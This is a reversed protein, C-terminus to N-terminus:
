NTFALSKVLANFQPKLSLSSGMDFTFYIGNHKLAFVMDEINIAQTGALNIQESPFGEVAFFKDPSIYINFDAYKKGPDIPIVTFGYKKTASKIKWKPNLSFKIHYTSDNYETWSSTDVTELKSSTNNAESSFHSIVKYDNKSNISIDSPISNYIVGILTGVVAICFLVIFSKTQININKM